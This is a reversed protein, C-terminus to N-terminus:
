GDGLIRHAKFCSIFCHRCALLWLYLEIVCVNTIRFSGAFYQLKDILANTTKSLGLLRPQVCILFRPPQLLLIGLKLFGGLRTEM